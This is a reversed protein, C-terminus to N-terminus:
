EHHGGAGSTVPEGAGPVIWGEAAVLRAVIERYARTVPSDPQYELMSLGYQPSEAVRVSRPIQGLIPVAGVPPPLHAFHATIEAVMENTLKNRRDVKTLIVGAVQLSPNLDWIVDRILEIEPAMARVALFEAEVPILLKDAAVMMNKKLEGLSSSSDLVIFDFRERAPTLLAKVVEERRSADRLKSEAGALEVSSPLVWFGLNGNARYIGEDFGLLRQERPVQKDTFRLIRETITLDLANPDLGAYIGSSGQPDLDVLLTELGLAAAAAAINFATTTKGVGGKWNTIGYIVGQRSHQQQMSRDGEGDAAPASPRAQPDPRQDLLTAFLDLVWDSTHRYQATATVADLRAHEEPTVYIRLELPGRAQEGRGRRGAAAGPEDLATLLLARLGSSFTPYHTAAIQAKLRAKTAENVRVTVFNTLKAAGTATPARLSVPM